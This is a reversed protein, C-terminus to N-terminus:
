ANPGSNKELGMRRIACALIKYFGKYQKDLQKGLAMPACIEYLFPEQQVGIGEACFLMRSDHKLRRKRRKQLRGLQRGRPALKNYIKYDVGGARKKHRLIQFGYAM